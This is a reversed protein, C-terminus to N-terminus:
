GLQLSGPSRGVRQVATWQKDVLGVLSKGMLIGLKRGKRKVPAM